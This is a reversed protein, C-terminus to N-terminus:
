VWQKVKKLCQSSNIGSNVNIGSVLCDECSHNMKNVLGNLYNASNLHSTCFLGINLGFGKM